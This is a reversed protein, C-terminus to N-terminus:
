INYMAVNMQHPISTVSPPRTSVRSRDLSVYQDSPLTNRADSVKSDHRNDGIGNKHFSAACRGGLRSHGTVHSWFQQIWLFKAESAAVWRFLTVDVRKPHCGILYKRGTEHSTDSVFM